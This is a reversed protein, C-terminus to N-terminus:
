KHPFDLVLSNSMTDQNKNLIQLMVFRNHTQKGYMKSVRGLVARPSTRLHTVPTSPTLGGGSSDLGPASHTGLSGNHSM